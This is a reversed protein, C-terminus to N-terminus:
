RPQFSLPVAVWVAVPRGKSMAPKFEWQRVCEEAARDLLPISKTVRTDKVKGDVDVLAQVIVSGEIGAERAQDPYRPEVRKVVQPLEEVYVYEGFKPLSGPAGEERPPAPIPEPAAPGGARGRGTAPTPLPPRLKEPQTPPSAWRWVEEFSGARGQTFEGRVRLVGRGTAEARHVGGTGALEKDLTREPYRFVGWYARGDFFGVGEWHGPSEVDYANGRLSRVILTDGPHADTLYVGEFGAAAAKVPADDPAAAASAPWSILALVALAGL